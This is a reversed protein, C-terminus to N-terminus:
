VKSCFIPEVLEMYKAYIVELSTRDLRIVTIFESQSAYTYQGLEYFENSVKLDMTLQGKKLIQTARQTETGLLLNFSLDKYSNNAKGDLNIFETYLNTSSAVLFLFILKKIM